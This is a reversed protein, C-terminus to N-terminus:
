SAEFNPFPFTDDHFCFAILRFLLLSIMPPFSCCSFNKWYEFHDRSASFSLELLFFPFSINEGFPFQELKFKHRNSTFIPYDTPLSNSLRFLRSGLLLAPFPLSFACLCDLQFPPPCEKGSRRLLRRPPLCQPPISCWPTALEFV